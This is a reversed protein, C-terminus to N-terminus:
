HVIRVDGGQVIRRDLDQTIRTDGVAAVGGSLVISIDKGMLDLAPMRGLRLRRRSLMM